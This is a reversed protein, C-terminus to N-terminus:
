LYNDEIINQIEKLTSADPHRTHDAHVELEAHHYIDLVNTCLQHWHAQSKVIAESLELLSGTELWKDYATYLTPFLVRRMNDMNGFYFHWSAAHNLELLAPLTTLSDALHDRIARLMISTKSHPLSYLLEEWSSGLIRGAKIEGHEHHIINKIECESMEALAQDLNSECDYCAFARGLANDPRNWRWTELKEWLLRRLSEKRIFITNDLSMAPPAAMDRAYEKGAIYLNYEEHHEYHDLDALFFHPRNNLGFGASYVLQLDKLTSNIDTSNFPDFVAKEISLTKFQEEALNEWLDERQRLWKGIHEKELVNSFSAKNEWRYLERMKLLYICLTYDGAHSADAIHCNYQVTENLQQFMDQSAQM